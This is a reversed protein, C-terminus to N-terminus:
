LPVGMARAARDAWRRTTRARDGTHKQEYRQGTEGKGKSTAALQDGSRRRQEFRRATEVVKRWRRRLGGEEGDWWRQGEQFVRDDEEIGHGGHQQQVDGGKEHVPVNAHGDKAVVAEM